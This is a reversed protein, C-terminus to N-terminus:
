SMMKKIWASIAISPYYAFAFIITWSLWSKESTTYGFVGRHLMDTLYYLLAGFVVIFFITTLVKHVLWKIKSKRDTLPLGKGFVTGKIASVTILLYFGAFSYYVIDRVLDSSIWNLFLHTVYFLGIMFIMFVSILVVLGKSDFENEMTEAEKGTINPTSVTM